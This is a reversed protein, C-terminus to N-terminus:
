VTTDLVGWNNVQGAGVYVKGDVVFTDGYSHVPLSTALVHSLFGRISGRNSAYYGASNMSSAMAVPCRCMLVSNNFMNNWTSTPDGLTGAQTALLTASYLPAYAPVNVSPNSANLLYYVNQMMQFIYMYSGPALKPHRTTVGSSSVNGGTGLMILPMPDDAASLIPDFAGVYVWGLVTKDWMVQIRKATVSILLRVATSATSGIYKYRWQNTLVNPFATTLVWTGPHSNDATITVATSTVECAGYSATKTSVDYREFMFVRFSTSSNTSYVTGITTFDVQFDLYFDLPLGSVLSSCKWVYNRTTTVGSVYDVTDVLSWAAHAALQTAIADYMQGNNVYTFGAAPTITTDIFSM